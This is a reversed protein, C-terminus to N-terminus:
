ISSDTNQAMFEIICGEADPLETTKHKIILSKICSENTDQIINNLKLLNLLRHSLILFCTPEYNTKNIVFTIIVTLPLKKSPIRHFKKLQPSIIGSLLSLRGLTYKYEGIIPSFLQNANFLAFKLRIAMDM